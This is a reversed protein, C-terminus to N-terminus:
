FIESKDIVYKTVSEIDILISKEAKVNLQGVFKKRLTSTSLLELYLCDYDKIFFSRQSEEEVMDAGSIFDALGIIQQAM